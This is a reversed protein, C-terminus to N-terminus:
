IDDVTFFIKKLFDRENIHVLFLIKTANKNTKLELNRKWFTM